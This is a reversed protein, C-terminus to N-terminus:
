HDKKIVLRYVNVFGATESPRIVKFIDGPKANYYKSVPDTYNIKLMNSKKVNYNSYFNTAQSQTLLEHTPILDQSVLDMLFDNKVFIQSNPFRNYVDLRAKKSVDDVIAMNLSKKYTHLFDSIGSSKNITSINHPIIKFIYHKFDKHIIPIKYVMNDSEMKLIKSINEQLDNENLYGRNTMMKVVNTLVSVHLDATHKEVSVLQSSSFINTQSM